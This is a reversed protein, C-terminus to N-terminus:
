LKRILHPSKKKKKKKKKRVSMMCGSKTLLKGAGLQRQLLPAHSSSGLISPNVFGIDAFFTLLFNQGSSDRSNFLCVRYSVFSSYASQRDAGVVNRLEKFIIYKLGVNGRGRETRVSLFSYASSSWILLFFCLRDRRIDRSLVPLIYQGATLLPNTELSVTTSRRHPASVFTQNLLLNTLWSYLEM